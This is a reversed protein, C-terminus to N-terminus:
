NNRKDILDALMGIALLEVGTLAIIVSITTINRYVIAQYLILLLGLLIMPMCIPLFIRLPDFYLIMRIILQTFNLTDHIPRIKSKGKREFYDIPVYKVDYNNTLMALTITSTFSFKDPLMRLFREVVSRKMVRLGSNLDPINERSLYSALRTIAWKAPRRILPIKADKKTRAGVVMDLDEDFYTQVLEPIVAIPYTGDADTIVIADNSASLIGTKLAAGYGKNTKHRVVRVGSKEVIESTGDSSGDDVVIVEPSGPLSKIEELTHEIGLAENYAPIIITYNLQEAM